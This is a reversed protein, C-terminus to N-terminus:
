RLCYASDDESLAGCEPEKPDYKFKKNSRAVHGDAYAANAFGNHRFHIKGASFLPDSPARLFNQANVPNGFGGDAFVVKRSPQAIQGVACPSIGMAPDGGIYTANYAYGTYPRGWGNGVFSPCNNIQHNKTYRALLGFKYDPPFSSWRLVFDWAYETNTNWDFYYSPCARGSNDDAYLAWASILQKLNSACKTQRAGEKAATVIPVMVAVIAAIIAVVVLLEVLSFGFRARLGDRICSQGLARSASRQEVTMKAESSSGNSLEYPLDESKRIMRGRGRGM